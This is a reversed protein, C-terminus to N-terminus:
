LCSILEVSTDWSVQCQWWRQFTASFGGSTEPYVTIALAAWLRRKVLGLDIETRIDALPKDQSRYRNYCSRCGLNCRLTPEIVSEGRERPPAAM